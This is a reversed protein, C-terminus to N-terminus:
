GEQGEEETDRPTLYRHTFHICRREREREPACACLHICMIWMWKCPRDNCMRCGKRYIKFMCIFLSRSETTSPLKGHNGGALWTKRFIDGESDQRGTRLHWVQVLLSVDIQKWSGPSDFWHKGIERAMNVDQPHMGLAKLAHVRHGHEFHWCLNVCCITWGRPETNPTLIVSQEEGQRPASYCETKRGWRSVPFTQHEM